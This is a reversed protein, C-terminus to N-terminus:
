RQHLAVVIIKSQGRSHLTVWENQVHILEGCAAQVDNFRVAEGSAIYYCRLQAHEQHTEEAALELVRAEAKYPARTIVNFDRVPGNVLTCSTQWDGSFIQPSYPTNLLVQGHEAFDLQMGEGSLLLITRECQEFRSFPGSQAVDAISMRWHFSSMDAHPPHVLLETTSGGGNKWPMVRYDTTKCVKIM